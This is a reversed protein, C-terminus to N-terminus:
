MALMKVRRRWGKLVGKKLEEPSGYDAPRFKESFFLSIPGDESVAIAFGNESLMAFEYAISHKTGVARLRPYDRQAQFGKMAKVQLLTDAANSQLLETTGIHIRPYIALSDKAGGDGERAFVIAGDVEAVERLKDALSGVGGGPTLTHWPSEFKRGPPRIKVTDLDVWSAPKTEAYFVLLLGHHRKSQEEVFRLITRSFESAIDSCNLTALFIECRQKLDTSFDGSREPLGWRSNRSDLIVVGDHYLKLRGSSSDLFVALVERNGATLASALEDSSRPSETYSVERYAESLEVNDKLQGTKVATHLLIARRDYVDRLLGLEVKSLAAPPRELISHIKKRDNLIEHVDDRLTISGNGRLARLCSTSSLSKFVVSLDFFESGFPPYVFLLVKDDSSRERAHIRMGFAAVAVSVDDTGFFEEPPKAVGPDHPGLLRPVFRELYEQHVLAMLFDYGTGEYITNKATEGAFNLFNIAAELPVPTEALAAGLAFEAGPDFLRPIPNNTQGRLAVIGDTLNQKYRRTVASGFLDGYVTESLRQLLELTPRDLAGQTVLTWGCTPLDPQVSAPFTYLFPGAFPEYFYYCQLFALIAQHNPHSLIQNRPLRRNIFSTLLGWQHEFDPQTSLYHDLKRGIKVRGKSLAREIGAHLSRQQTGESLKVPFFYPLLSPLREIVEDGLHRCLPSSAAGKRWKASFLGRLDLVLDQVDNLEASASSPELTEPFIFGIPGPPHNTNFVQQNITLSRRFIRIYVDLLRDGHVVLAERSGWDEPLQHDAKAAFSRARRKYHSTFHYKSTRLRPLGLARYHCGLLAPQAIGIKARLQDLLAKADTSLDFKEAVEQLSSKDVLPQFFTLQSESIKDELKEPKCHLLDETRLWKRLLERYAERVESFAPFSPPVIGRIARSGVEIM